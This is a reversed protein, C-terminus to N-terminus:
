ASIKSSGKWAKFPPMQRNSFTPESSNSADHHEWRNNRDAVYIDDFVMTCLRLMLSKKPNRIYMSPFYGDEELGKWYLRDEDSFAGVSDGLIDRLFRLKFGEHQNNTAVIMRDELHFLLVQSRKPFGALQVAAVVLAVLATIGLLILVLQMPQSSTSYFALTGLLVAAGLIIALVYLIRSRGVENRQQVVM